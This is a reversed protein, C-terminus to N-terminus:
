LMLAEAPTGNEYEAHFKGISIGFGIGTGMGM